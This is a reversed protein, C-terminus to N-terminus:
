PEPTTGLAGMMAQWNNTLEKERTLLVDVNQTGFREREVKLDKSQQQSAKFAAMAEELRKKQEVALNQGMRELDPAFAPNVNLHSVLRRAVVTAVMEDIQFLVRDSLGFRKRADEERKARELTGADSAELQTRQYALYNDLMAPTLVLPGDASAAPVASPTTVPAPTPADAKCGAFLLLVFAFARKM